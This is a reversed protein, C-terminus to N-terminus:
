QNSAWETMNIWPNLEPSGFLMDWGLAYDLRDQAIVSALNDEVPSGLDGVTKAILMARVPNEQMIQLAIKMIRIKFTMFWTFGLSDLYSRTRGPMNSYNVFEENIKAIAEDHTMGSELLHDYLVSKALFDGYQVAKNAGKYLATDKAVIGYKAVTNVGSPLKNMQKEIWDLFRGSTLEVDLDTIGESLNKYAGAEILPAISMRANEDYIAQRQSKLIAERNRNHAAMRIQTDLEILKKGNKNYKEIEQFKDRYGRIIAKPGVGRTTLQIVNAQLNMYTVVLSRVVINNKATSIVTQIGDETSGLVKMTYNGEDFQGITLNAVAKVTNRVPEPLRSKGTWVDLVSPERYGLSLNIMDKRVPFGEHGFTELIYTKTQAPINDWTDKYVQDSSDSLSLDVFLDDSGVERNDWIGKLQDVLENNYQQAFKEEVQRGAWVGLM